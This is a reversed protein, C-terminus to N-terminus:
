TVAGWLIRASERAGRIMLDAISADLSGAFVPVVYAAFLLSAIVSGVNTAAVVVILRFLPVDLMDSFIARVPRTEDSLLENLTGIDSVNVTLHRLEMYGTFWGPALLPNVSTMWAVAGGVGASRWRAGALKALGAAFVGNILFWAAFLTLLQENRVGAMALLVFFAIFAASIGFAAIKGWPIGGSKATGVLSDMPPLSAPEALYSEIGARHGAGVVAVVDYGEERLGVLQHAIYADREDILAEAGGPSFQRFEEMMATVVDTDTLDDPDFEEYEAEAADPAVGLADIAVATLAGVGVGALLGLGLSGVARVITGSLLGAVADVGVGTVTVAGAVAVAVVAAVGLTRVGDPADAADGDVGGAGSRGAGGGLSLSAARFGLYGAVLGALAGVGVRTLVADTIGVAGGFLGIAPGLLVGVILGFTIGAVRPDTVGFALAGVMRLKEMGSLRAWFRQITVQIDRDVLAVSIGLDEATEVAALLEAGPEIDFRDGMRTQVYSLMWYALFQFVTNGTLLDGPDLDDPTEGKMQRYRGEDLEVAVVDPREEAVTEEVERVSAESVHATGVVRVSGEGRENSPRPAGGPAPDAAADTAPDGGADSIRSDPADPDRSVAWM